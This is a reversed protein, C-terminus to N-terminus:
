TARDDGMARDLQDAALFCVLSGGGPLPHPVARGRLGVRVQEPPLDVVNTVLRPGSDLEVLAVVYPVLAAFAPHFARRYVCFSWVQGAGPDTVWTAEGGLCEPCIGAPPHRLYGCGVCRQFRLRGDRGQRQFERQHRDAPGDGLVSAAAALFREVAAASGTTM